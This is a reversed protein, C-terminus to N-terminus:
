KINHILMQRLKDYSIDRLFLNDLIALAAAAGCAEGTAASTPMIRLASQGEHTSSICRGAALVNKVNKIFLARLPIEYYNGEPLYEMKSEKDEQGHIDVGYCGRAICDHFKKSERIDTGTVVYDGIVRRTERIGVQMATELLYSNEFGPIEDQLIKVIQHTQELGIEEATTLQESSSGDLGLINTSNFSAEGTEPLSTFFIYKVDQSLRKENAANQVSEFFGAISIIKSLDFEEEVWDFFDQRHNKVYATVAALNINAMRFFLTLAQTKGHGSEGKETPLGAMYALQADGSTDIFIKSDINSKNGLTNVSISKLISNEITVEEIESNLLLAVGSEFLLKEAALRFANAYFGNNIMGKIKRMDEELELFIGNVLSKEGIWHKMFPSVMGATSIGGVFSFREILLTRAGGRASKIAACIGAIGGGIIVIDFNSRKKLM